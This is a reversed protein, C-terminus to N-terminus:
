NVGAMKFSVFGINSSGNEGLEITGDVNTVRYKNRILSCSAIISETKTFREKYVM